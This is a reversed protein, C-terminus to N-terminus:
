ILALEKIVHLLLSCLVAISRLLQTLLTFIIYLELPQLMCIFGTYDSLSSNGQVGPDMDNHLLLLIGV